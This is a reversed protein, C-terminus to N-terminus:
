RNGTPTLFHYTVKSFTPYPYQQIDFPCLEPVWGLNRGFLPRLQSYDTAHMHAYDANKLRLVGVLTGCQTRPVHRERIRM